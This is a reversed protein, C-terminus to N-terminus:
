FMVLTNLGQLYSTTTKLTKPKRITRRRKWAMDKPCGDFMRYDNITILSQYALFPGHFNESEM